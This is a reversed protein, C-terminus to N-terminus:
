PQIWQRKLALDTNTMTQICMKGKKTGFHVQSYTTGLKNTKKCHDLILISVM